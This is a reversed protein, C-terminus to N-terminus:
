HLLDDIASHIRLHHHHLWPERLIIDDCSPLTFVANIEFCVLTEGCFTGDLMFLDLEILEYIGKLRSDTKCFQDLTNMEEDLKFRHEESFCDRTTHNVIWNESYYNHEPYWTGNVCVLRFKNYLSENRKYDFWEAIYLEPWKGHGFHNVLEWISEFRMLGHANHSSPIRVILPFQIGVKNIFELSSKSNLYSPLRITKPIYVGKVNGVTESVKERTTNLLRSPRNIWNVTFENELQLLCDLNDKMFDADSLLCFIGEIKRANQYHEFFRLLHQIEMGVLKFGTQKLFVDVLITFGNFSDELAECNRSKQNASNPLPVLWKPKSDDNGFECEMQSINFVSSYIDLRDSPTSNHRNAQAHAWTCLNPHYTLKCLLALTRWTSKRNPRIRLARAVNIAALRLKNKKVFYKARNLYHCYAEDDNISVLVKRHQLSPQLM